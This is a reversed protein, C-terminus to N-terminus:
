RSPWSRRWRGAGRGAGAVGRLVQRTYGRVATAGALRSARPMLVTILSQNLTDLRMALTLAVSYVGVVGPSALRGLLLVDGQGAIISGFDLGDDM